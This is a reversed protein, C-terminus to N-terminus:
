KQDKSDKRALYFFISKKFKSVIKEKQHLVSICYNDIGGRWWIKTKLWRIISRMQAESYQHPGGNYWHSGELGLINLGAGNVLRGHLDHGGMPLKDKFRIDHNGKVYYLPVDLATTLRTLYEPPLDGCALILETGTLERPLQRDQFAPEVRDSVTLIKM